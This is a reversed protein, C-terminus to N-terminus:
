GGQPKNRSGTINVHMDIDTTLQYKLELQIKVQDIADKYEKMFTMAALPDVKIKNFQEIVERTNMIEKIEEETLM